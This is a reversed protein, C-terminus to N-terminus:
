SATLSLVEFADDWLRHTIEGYDVRFGTGRRMVFEEIASYQASINIVRRLAYRSDFGLVTNAAVVGDDVVIIRPSRINLNEVNADVGTGDTPTQYVNTYIPKGSRGTIALAAALDCIVTDIMRKRYNRRLYKIWALHSLTGNASLASDLTEATVAVLAAESSRDTDGNLVADIDEEIMAIREGRSQAAMIVNVLQLTTSAAAEDSIQVGISRTAIKRAVNSTTIGIMQNPLSLQGIPAARSGEAGTTSILPQDFNAGNITDTIAIASTWGGIFDDYNEMLNSEMTRMIIEPFLLRGAPTNRESGDPRILNSIQIGDTMIERMTPSRLGSLRDNGLFMGAAQMMQSIVPGYKQEDTAGAYKQSLYQSLNMGHKAAQEYESVHFDIETHNGSRDRIKFKSQDASM